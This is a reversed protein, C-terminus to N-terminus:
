VARALGVFNADFTGAAEKDRIRGEIDWLTENLRKAEFHAGDAALIEEYIKAAEAVRGQQQLVLGGRFKAQLFADPQAPVPGDELGGRM